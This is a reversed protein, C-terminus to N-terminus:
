RVADKRRDRKKKARTRPARASESAAARPLRITFTSGQGLRSWLRVEGGHRQVAHKVIALGLGTGGTHRSRARDARFFREFVRAQDKEAIGIGQDTVSIEVVAGITKVGVGVRAGAPSYAIANAVLNGLAEEGLMRPDGHVLVGTEGARAIEIDAADAQATHAAIVDAILEDVDVDRMPVPEDAELQSLTMIRTTLTGLREAEARLRTAFARVQAPDDAASEVAESLLSMAGVPTKLEHSTNAVFDRRMKAAQERETVDHLVLLVLRATIARAHVATLRVSGALDLPVIVPERTTGARAARALLALQQEGLARGQAFGSEVAAGSAAVVTGSPDVVMAPDDLGDLVVRVGDPVQPNARRVANARARYAAGVVLVVSVGLVVGILLAFVALQAADM